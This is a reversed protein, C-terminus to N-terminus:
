QNMAVGCARLCHACRDGLGNGTLFWFECGMRRVVKRLQFVFLRTMIDVNTQNASDARGESSPTKILHHDHSSINM